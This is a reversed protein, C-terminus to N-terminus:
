DNRFLSGVNENQLPVHERGVLGLGAEWPTTQPGCVNTDGPADSIEWASIQMKVLNGAIKIHQWLRLSIPCDTGTPTCLTQEVPLLEVNFYWTGAFIGHQPTHMVVPEFDLLM